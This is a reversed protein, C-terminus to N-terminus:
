QGNKDIKRYIKKEDGKEMTRKDKTMGNSYPRIHSSHLVNTWCHNKYIRKAGFPLMSHTQRHTKYKM